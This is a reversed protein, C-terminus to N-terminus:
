EQEPVQARLARLANHLRSKVTGLPIGLADAIEELKLDLAFRLRVVEREGEPLRAVLRAFDGDEESPLLFGLEPDGGVTRRRKRALDIALHKVAPYLLSRLSARLTLGPLKGFLWLFTEQMVDLADSRNGTLRHALGLVWDRHRRYLEELAAPDGRNARAVLAGEGPESSM